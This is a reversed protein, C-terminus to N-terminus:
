HKRFKPAEVRRAWALVQDITLDNTGKIITLKRLIETMMNDDNIDNIFQEKLRRDKEKHVCQSKNQIAWRNKLM